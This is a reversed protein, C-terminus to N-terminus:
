SLGLCGNVRDDQAHQGWNLDDCDEGVILWVEVVLVM